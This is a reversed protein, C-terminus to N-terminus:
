AEDHNWEEFLELPHPIRGNGFAKKLERPVTVPSTEIQDFRYLLHKVHKKGYAETFLKCAKNLSRAQNAEDLLDIMITQMEDDFGSLRVRERAETLTYFDGHCFMKSLYYDYLYTGIEDGHKLFDKITYLSFENRYKRRLHKIKDEMCRIEIRVINKAKDLQGSPYQYNKKVEKYMQAYKNYISVAIYGQSIVTMDDKCRKIKKDKKDYYESYVDLSKPMRCRKALNVYAKVQEQNDLHGNICFDFRTLNCKNIKPLEPCIKELKKDIASILKKYNNTDSLGVYDDPEIIRHASIIYKLRYGKFKSKKIQAFRILIGDMNAGFYLMGYSTKNWKNDKKVIEQIKYYQNNTLQTTTEFTHFMM